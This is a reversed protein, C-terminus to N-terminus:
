AAQGRSSSRTHGLDGLRTRLEQMLADRPLGAPLPEGIAITVVGPRKFFAKRGWCRGSDTAVPVVPLGARAALAAVGPQLTGVTGPESRTGEPFIIVQQGRRLAETGARILGRVASAGASRDVPIQDAVKILPGFLPIRLLEQKLVYCPRPVLTFWVFTDFASQHASAILIPGAPLRELGTVQLRIGCILRVAAVNLTAWFRIIDIMREPAAFRVVTAPWTLIFTAGYFFVNFLMSRLFIM